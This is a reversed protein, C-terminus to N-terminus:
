LCAELILLAWLLRSHDSKGSLHASVTSAIADPDFLGSQALAGSQGIATLRDRFRTRMWQDIPVVFGQKPRHVIETPVHAELVRKLVVKGSFGDLKLRTPLRMAWQAVELDLLPNRAEVGHAMTAGDVKVLMRAPLWTVLDAYQARALPDETDAEQLASRLIDSPHYAPFKHELAARAEASLLGRVQEFPAIHTARFLGGAQDAALSELTAKARLFRPAWDAKPYLQAATGIGHRRVLDPLVGKLKEERLHFPYRRYGAFLEDGGDGSLAVTVHRKTLHSLALMPLASADAFPEGYAAAIPALDAMAEPDVPEIHHRAGFREAVMAAWRTEDVSSGPFAMTCANVPTGGGTESMLALIASSDVGGSLFAGLPVDSIMRKGVARRLLADLEASADELSQGSDVPDVHARWYRQPASPEGPKFRQSHAPPFKEVGARISKDGPVYGYCLYDTLADLRIAPTTGLGALLAPLSSAFALIGDETQAMFLPKKGWRDRLLFLAGEHWIAAAFFGDLKQALDSGWARYGHLLVETDSRTRFEVGSEELERRLERFNYIMGNFAIATRADPSILPQQGGEPDIIALRRHGLAVGPARWQGEGDPGRQAMADTMAKIRAPDIERAGHLDFLGAIGCM